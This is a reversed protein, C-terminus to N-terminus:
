SSSTSRASTYRQTTTLDSPLGPVCLGRKCKFYVSDDAKDPHNGETVVGNAGQWPGNKM